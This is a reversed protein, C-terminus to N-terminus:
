SRAYLNQREEQSVCTARYSTSFLWPHTRTQKPTRHCLSLASV